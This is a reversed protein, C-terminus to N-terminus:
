ILKTIINENQLHLGNNTVRSNVPGYKPVEARFRSFLPRNGKSQFVKEIQPFPGRTIIVIGNLSLILLQVVFMDGDGLKKSM